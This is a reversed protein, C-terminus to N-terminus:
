RTVPTRVQGPTVQIETEGRSRVQIETEVRSRYKQKLGLTVTFQGNGQLDFNVARVGTVVALPSGFQVADLYIAAM